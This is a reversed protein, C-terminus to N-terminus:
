SNVLEIVPMHLMEYTSLTLLAGFFQMLETVIFGGPPGLLHWLLSSLRTESIM